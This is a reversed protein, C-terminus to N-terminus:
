EAGAKKGYKARFARGSAIDEWKQLKGEHELVMQGAESDAFDPDIKGDIIIGDGIGTSVTLYLVKKYRKHLSAEYIGALNVDHEIYIPINGVVKALDAAVPVDHWPLNGFTLGTGTDRDVKGPIACCCATIKADKFGNQQLSSELDKFFLGYKQHTAIKQKHVLKGDQSFVALLTKTAGVDIALYM